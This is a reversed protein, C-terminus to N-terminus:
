AVAAGTEPALWLVTGGFADTMTVNRDIAVGAVTDGVAIHQVMQYGRQPIAPVNSGSKWYHKVKLRWFLQDGTLIASAGVYIGPEYGAGAVEAHWANCYAIVDAAAAVHNVGELDLWVNVGAPLGVQKANFAADSGNSTGLAANPGWGAPATHQVAMLALGADLLISAERETLDGPQQGHARSLYRVAFAFGAARMGAATAATLVTNADFGHVGAAAAAVTGALAM